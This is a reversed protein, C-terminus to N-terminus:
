DARAQTRAHVIVEGSAPAAGEREITYNYTGPALDCFSAV